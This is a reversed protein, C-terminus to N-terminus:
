WVVVDNKFIDDFGVSTKAMDAVQEPAIIADDVSDYKVASKVLAANGIVGVFSFAMVLALVLSLLKKSQKM